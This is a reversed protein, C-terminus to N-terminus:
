VYKAEARTMSRIIDTWLIIEDIYPTAGFMRCEVTGKASIRVLHWCNRPNDAFSQLQATEFFHEAGEYIPPDPHDAMTRYLRLREGGSHDGMRCLTSVNAAIVNHVRLEKRFSFQARFKQFETQEM